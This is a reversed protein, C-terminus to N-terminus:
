FFVAVGRLAPSRRNQPNLSSISRTYGFQRFSLAAPAARQGFPEDVIEQLRSQFALPSSRLSRSRVGLLWELLLEAALLLLM